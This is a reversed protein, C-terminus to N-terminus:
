MSCGTVWEVNSISDIRDNKFDEIFQANKREDFFGAPMFIKDFSYQFGIFQM